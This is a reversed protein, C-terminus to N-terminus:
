TQSVVGAAEDARSPSNYDVVVNVGDGALSEAFLKGLNATGGTVIAVRGNAKTTPATNANM